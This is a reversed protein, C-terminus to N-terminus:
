AMFKTYAGDKFRICYIFSDGGLVLHSWATQDWPVLPPCKALM